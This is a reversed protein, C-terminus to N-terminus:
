IDVPPTNGAPLNLFWGENIEYKALGYERFCADPLNVAQRICDNVDAITNCIDIGIKLGQM